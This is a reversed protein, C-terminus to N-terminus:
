KKLYKMIGTGNIDKLVNHLLDTPLLDKPIDMVNFKTYFFHCIETCYYKDDDIYINFRALGAQIISYKKGVMSLLFERHTDTFTDGIKMEVRYFPLRKSAKIKRIEPVMAEIIYVENDEKIAIGVHTYESWTFLRIIKGGIGSRDDTWVLLDGEEIDEVNNNNM